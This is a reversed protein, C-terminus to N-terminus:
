LTTEQQGMNRGNMESFCILDHRNKLDQCKVKKSHLDEFCGTFTRQVRPKYLHNTLLKLHFRFKLKILLNHYFIILTKMITQM